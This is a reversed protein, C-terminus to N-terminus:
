LGAIGSKLTKVKIYMCVQMVSVAVKYYGLALSFGLNGDIFQVISIRALLFFRSICSEIM